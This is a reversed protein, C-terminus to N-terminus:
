QENHYVIVIKSLEVARAGDVNLLHDIGGLGGLGGFEEGWYEPFGKESRQTVKM